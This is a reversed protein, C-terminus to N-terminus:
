RYKVRHILFDWPAVATQSNKLNFRMFIKKIELEHVSKWAIRYFLLHYTVMDMSYHIILKILLNSWCIMYSYTTQWIKPTPIYSQLYPSRANCREDVLVRATNYSVSNIRKRLHYNKITPKCQVKNPLYLKNHPTKLWM